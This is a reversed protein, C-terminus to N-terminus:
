AAAVSLCQMFAHSDFVEGWKKRQYKLGCLAAFFNESCSHISFYYLKLGLFLVSKHFPDAIFSLSCLLNNLIVDASPLIIYAQPLSNSFVGLSSASAKDLPQFCYLNSLEFFLKGVSM